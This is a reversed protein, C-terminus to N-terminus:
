SQGLFANIIANLQVEEILFGDHGYPSDIEAYQGNSLQKAIARQEVPPHLLDSTIGIVLSRAKVSALAEEVSGRDRGVNHSDMAKTLLWYAYATFRNALKEGQYKIYSSAKFDDTKQGDPDTQTKVFMDFNRYTVMGIGRATILGTRGAEKTMQRWTPDGEIALRQTTHIAIGWASERAATGILILQDYVDPEQLAWELLQYGGMSASLGVSIREIKLHKRLLIHARVMDRMTFEPFNSFYPTGTKPDISEPGSTGYCSGIINACIVFHEAGNIARNPGVLISWWEAVDSSATLNHCVWVVNDRAPSLEGYTHYAIQLQELQEGSELEFAQDSTFIHQAM